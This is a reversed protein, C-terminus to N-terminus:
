NARSLGDLMFDVAHEIGELDTWSRAAGYPENWFDGAQPTWPGVYLYPEPRALDGPSGGFNIRDMSFALDFHEPWLQIITPAHARRLRRVEELVIEVFEFWSGLVQVSDPDLNLPRDAEVTTTPTFVGTSAGPELGAFDLAAGVTTLEHWQEDDGDTLALLGGDVRLRRRHGDVMHEPQGFGGPTRRLGIKGTTRHLDPALIHEAIAHLGVRTAALTATDLGSDTTDM